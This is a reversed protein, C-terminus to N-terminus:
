KLLIMKKTSTYRGSKMRYFYIGSAVRKGTESTGSWTLKHYGADLIDNVLHKVRQGRINYIDISVNAKKALYFSINTVPNFPNPYNGTLETVRPIMANDDAVSSTGIATVPLLFEAMNLDSSHIPINGSYEGEETPMFVIDFTLSSTAPIDYPYDTRDGEEPMVIEFGDITSIYGVMNVTGFNYIVVERSEQEGVAVEGFDLSTESFVFMPVDGGGSSPLQILDIWACDSGAGVMGDKSYQWRFEHMGANVPFSVNSWDEEGSWTGTLINDIYFKLLDWSAESSVKKYFSINGDMAVNVTVLVANSQNNGITGSRFAYQGEYAETSDLLWSADGSFQWGFATLGNEFDERVLGVSVDYSNMVSYGGSEVYFGVTIIYGLPVQEDLTIQFDATDNGNVVLNGMEERDITLTVLPYSCFITAEVEPADASGTNAIPISLVLTEGPDVIGNGDGLNDLVLMNGVILNPAESTLYFTRSWDNTTGEIAVVLTISEQNPINDALQISFIDSYDTVQGHTVVGLDETGDIVTVYPNDVTLVATLDSSDDAGVNELQLDFSLTSGFVPQDDTTMDNVMVWPGQVIMIPLTEILTTRNYATTTLILNTPSDPTLSSDLQLSIFGNDNTYGSALIENNYNLSVLANAADTQVDMVYIGLPLFPLHQSIIPMPTDTRLLLSADGFIHWTEFLSIGGTGHDDIMECSGNYCTGGVTLKDENVILDVIEDQATMPPAWSQSISSAYIAISGTPANMADNQARMWTEAFCVQNENFDGNNCAVTVIFPLLYDNILLNVDANTFNTTVWRSLSGHGVYNVFSRGTNIATFVEANTATPDYIEDVEDYNYALLDDRIYGMHVPDSEGGDHGLGDGQSSAIGTAKHLWDGSNIDREYHVTREVQTIVDAESEASFRGIFIDPYSDTGEVLAYKPDALGNGSTPSPVHNHDGVLQIFTLTNDASYEAQIYNSIQQSTTGISAVDIIECPIGKQIKWDVYPQMEDMYQGYSIILIRGHEDVPTYRLSPTNIFHHDYIEMFNNNIQDNTRIKVNDTSVGTYNIEVVMHHYVRLVQRVPDYAFPYLTITQGRWDRLIYPSGLEAQVAPYENSGSYANGFTWAITAPDIQRSIIGKSPVPKMNFEVYDSSTVQVAMEADDGIIISRTIKPLQPSGAEATRGEKELSINYYMEGNIMVPLRTFSGFQYELVIQQESSTTVEARFQNSNITVTEATLVFFLLCVAIISLVRKM